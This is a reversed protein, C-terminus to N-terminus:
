GEAEGFLMRDIYALKREVHEVCQQFRTYLTDERTRTTGMSVTRDEARQLNARISVANGVIKEYGEMTIFLPGETRLLVSEGLPHELDSSPAGISPPAPEPMLMYEEHLLPINDPLELPPLEQPVQQQVQTIAQAVEPLPQPALGAPALDDVHAPKEPPPLILPEIPKLEDATPEAPGEVRFEPPKPPVDMDVDIGFDTSEKKRGFLAM